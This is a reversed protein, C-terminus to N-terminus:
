AAVDMPRLGRAPIRTLPIRRKEAQLVYAARIGAGHQLRADVQPHWRAGLGLTLADTQLQARRLSRRWSFPEHAHVDVGLWHRRYPSLPNLAFLWLRGGPLLVRACESLWPLASAPSGVHQVVITAISESQLPLVDQPCYWDGGWGQRRPSLWVGLPASIGAPRAAASFVLWPLGPRAELAQALLGTESALLMAAAQSAFWDAPPEPQRRATLVPMKAM